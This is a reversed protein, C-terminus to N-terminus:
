ETASSAPQRVVHVHFDWTAWEHTYVVPRPPDLDVDRDVGYEEGLSLSPQALLFDDVKDTAVILKFRELSRAVGDELLFEEDPGDGWLTTWADGPPVPENGLTYVGYTETFCVLLASLVQSTRNRLRFLGRIRRWRGGVSAYALEAESGTHLREGGGALQEAFVLEIKSRDIATRQNRLKLGREWRAVQRIAPALAAAARAPTTRALTVFGIARDGNALTLRGDAVTLAYGVADSPDVLSVHAGHQGLTEQIAARTAEDGACVVPLPTAPLSTVEAVYRVSEASEFELVIESRQPGVQVARATGAVAAPDGEPFLTFAVDTGPESPVGAIAGCEVTWVGNDCVALYRGRTTRTLPRGLFGAGADFRDFTEFQPDQDYARARVAARCRVFLDAYSVEGGSKALVDLLSATFMGHEPIEQALQGRECAALLIHRGRPVFLPEGAARLRAYHGDLYSELPRETTVAETLRPKARAAEIGRTGSGSHCCDFLVVTHAGTAAVEAILVALEKDALDYGGPRRSDACVLGEDMGDPSLARFAASSAWRAGHGCFQFLAVDGARAQGLHSRFRDIVNARTAQDNKLVEAALAAGAQRTLYEHLLDVDNLCGDLSEIPPAYDNVGVLLAYVRSSV